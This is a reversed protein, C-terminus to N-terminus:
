GRGRVPMDDDRGGVLDDLGDSSAIASSSGTAGGVMIAPGDAVLSM